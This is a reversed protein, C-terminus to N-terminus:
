PSLKGIVYLISVGLITGLALGLALRAIRDKRQQRM